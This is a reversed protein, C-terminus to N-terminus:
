KCETFSEIIYNLRNFYKKIKETVDYYNTAPVNWASGELTIKNGDWNFFFAQTYDYAIKSPDTVDIYRYHKGVVMYRKPFREKKFFDFM